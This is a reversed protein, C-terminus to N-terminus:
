FFIAHVVLAAFQAMIFLLVYAAYAGSATPDDHKAAAMCFYFFLGINLVMAWYPHHSFFPLLLLTAALFYLLLDHKRGVIHLLLVCFACAIMAAAIAWWAWM